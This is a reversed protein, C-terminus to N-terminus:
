NENPQTSSERATEKSIRAKKMKLQNNFFVGVGMTLWLLKDVQDTKTIGGLLIVLYAIVWVNRLPIYEPNGLKGAGWIDMMSKILLFM